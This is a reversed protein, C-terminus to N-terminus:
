VHGFRISEAATLSRKRVLFLRTYWEWKLMAVAVRSM